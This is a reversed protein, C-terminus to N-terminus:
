EDVVSGCDSAAALLAAVAERAAIEFHQDTRGAVAVAEALVLAASSFDGLATYADGLALLDIALERPLDLARHTEISADLMRIAPRYEGAALMLAGRISSVRALGRRDSSRTYIEAAQQLPEPDSSAEALACLAHAVNRFDDLEVFISVAERIFVVARDSAGTRGLIRGITDLCRAEGMRDGAAQFLPLAQEELDLAETLRDTMFRVRGLDALARAEGHSDGLRRYIDLSQEQMTSAGAQDGTASRLKGLENLGGAQGFRDGCTASHALLENLVHEARGYNAAVYYARALDLLADSEAATDSLRRAAALARTHLKIATDPTGERRLLPALEHTLHVLEPGEAQRACALLNARERRLWTVAATADAFPPEDSGGVDITHQPREHEGLLRNAARARQVYHSHLRTMSEEREEVSDSGRLALVYHRLLDHLRFRGPESEDLLHEMFLAELNRRATGEDTGDLAAAAQSEIVLGPHLVVRRLFRQLSRSLEQYSMSLAADVAQERAALEGLRDKSARFDAAFEGFSWTTHQKFRGALLGIALPLCGCLTVVGAVEAMDSADLDRGCLRQFMEIAEAIPMTELPLDFAGELGVLRSRSTVVVLAGDSPLLPEIQARSSVDDLILLIRAGRVCDRWRAARGDLAVPIEQPPLGRASLLEGLVDTVAIAPVGPTHSHLDVRLRGDPYEYAVRDAFFAALASKGVGPMGHISIISLGSRPVRLLDEIHQERGVFWDPHRSLTNLAPSPSPLAALQLTMSSIHGTNAFSGSGLV